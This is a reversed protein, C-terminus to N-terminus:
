YIKLGRKKILDSTRKFDKAFMDAVMPETVHGPMSIAYIEYNRHTNFRARLMAMELLVGPDCYEYREGKLAAEVKKSQEADIDFIIEVGLDDWSLIFRHSEDEEDEENDDIYRTM